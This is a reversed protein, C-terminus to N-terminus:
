AEDHASPVSAPMCIPRRSAGRIFTVIEQVEAIEPWRRATLEVREQFPVDGFFLSRYASRLAHLQDRSMGRRKLGVINLGELVGRSGQVLGYPIIDAAVGTVGGLFSGRGLRVYQLVGVLGGVSVGDEVTVHGAMAVSSAFTVDNGIQCDHAVHSYAMFYGRDGVLTLNGGKATGANMTVHERIINDSGVRLFGDADGGPPSRFQARGGLVAHSHIETRAGVITDGLVVVHSALRVGDGLQVRPGVVCFPGVEVGAGLRAGDEVIASAHITSKM